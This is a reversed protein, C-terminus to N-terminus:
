LSCFDFSFITIQNCFILIEKYDFKQLQIFVRLYYYIFKDLRIIKLIIYLYFNSYM